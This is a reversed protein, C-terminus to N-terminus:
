EGERRAAELERVRDQLLEHELELADYDRMGCDAEIRYRDCEQTRQELLRELESLAQDALACLTASYSNQLGNRITQVLVDLDDTM